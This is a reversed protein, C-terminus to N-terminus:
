LAGFWENAPVSLLENLPVGREGALVSRVPAFRRNFETMGSVGASRSGSRAEIAVLRPGRKLVFDVEM